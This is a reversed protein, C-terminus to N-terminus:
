PAGKVLGHGKCTPCPVMSTAKQRRAAFAKGTTTYGCSYCHLTDADHTADCEDAGDPSTDVVFGGNQGDVTAKCKPCKWEAMSPQYRTHKATCAPSPTPHEAPNTDM